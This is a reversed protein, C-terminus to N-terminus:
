TPALRTSDLLNGERELTALAAAILDEILDAGVIVMQSAGHHFPVETSDIWDGFRKLANANAFWCWRESKDSLRLNVEIAMRDQHELPDAIVYRLVRLSM